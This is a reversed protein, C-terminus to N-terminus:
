TGRGACVSWARLRHAAQNPNPCRTRRPMRSVRRRLDRTPVYNDAGAATPGPRGPGDAGRTRQLLGEALLSRIAFRRLRLAVVGGVWVRARCFGEDDLGIVGAPRVRVLGDVGRVGAGLREPSLQGAVLQPLVRIVFMLSWRARYWAPTLRRVSVWSPAIPYM